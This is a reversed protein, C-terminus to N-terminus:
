NHWCGDKWPCYSCPFKAPADYEREPLNDLGTTSFVRVAKRGAEEVVRRDLETVSESVRPAGKLRTMDKCVLIMRHKPISAAAMYCHKQCTWEKSLVDPGEKLFQGYMYNGISKIELIAEEGDVIIVGDCHGKVRMPDHGDVPIVLMVERQRAGTQKVKVTHGDFLNHRVALGLLYVIDAELMRGLRFNFLSDGTDPTGPIGIKEYALARACKGLKSMRLWNSSQHGGFMTLSYKGGIEEDLKAARMIGDAIISM